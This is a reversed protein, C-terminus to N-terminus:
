CNTQGLDMVHSIVGNFCNLLECSDKLFCKLTRVCIHKEEEVIPINMVIQVIPIICVTKIKYFFM